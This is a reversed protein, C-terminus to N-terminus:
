FYDCAARFSGKRRIGFQLLNMFIVCVYRDGIYPDCFLGTGSPSNRVHGLLVLFLLLLFLVLFADLVIRGVAAALHPPPDATQDGTAQDTVDDNGVV